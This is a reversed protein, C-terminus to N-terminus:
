AERNPPNQLLTDVQERDLTEEKPTYVSWLDRYLFQFRDWIPPDLSRKRAALALLKLALITHARTLQKAPFELLALATHEAEDIKGLLLWLQGWYELDDLGHHKRDGFCDSAIFALNTVIKKHLSLEAERNEVRELKLSDQDVMAWLIRAGASPHKALELLWGENPEGFEVACRVTYEAAVSSSPHHHVYPQAYHCHDMFTRTLALVEAPDVRRDLEKRPQIAHFAVLFWHQAVQEATTFLHHDADADADWASLPLQRCRDAVWKHLDLTQNSVAICAGLSVIWDRHIWYNWDRIPRNDQLIQTISAQHSLLAANAIEAAREPDTERLSWALSGLHRTWTETDRSNARLGMSLSELLKSSWSQHVLRVLIKTVATELQQVRRPIDYGHSDLSHPAASLMEGIWWASSRPQLQLLSNALGALLSAAKTDLDDCPPRLETAWTHEGVDERGSVRLDQDLANVTELSHVIALAIQAPCSDARIWDLTVKHNSRRADWIVSWTARAQVVPHDLRKVLHKLLRPRLAMSLDILNEVAPQLGGVVFRLDWVLLNQFTEIMGGRTFNDKPIEASSLDLGLCRNADLVKNQNCATELVSLTKQMFHDITSVSWKSHILSAAREVDISGMAWVATTSLDVTRIEEVIAAAVQEKMESRLWHHNGHSEFWGQIENRVTHQDAAAVYHKVMPRILEYSSRGKLPSEGEGFIRWTVERAQNSVLPRASNSSSM